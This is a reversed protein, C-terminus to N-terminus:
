CHQPWFDYRGKPFVIVAQKSFRCAELAKKVYPVANERTDPKLGFDAVSVQEAQASAAQWGLCCICFVLLQVTIKM